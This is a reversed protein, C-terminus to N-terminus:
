YMDDGFLYDFLVVWVLDGNVFVYDCVLSKEMESDWVGDFM